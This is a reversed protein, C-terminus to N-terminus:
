MYIRTTRSDFRVMVSFSGSGLDWSWRENCSKGNQRAEESRGIKLFKRMHELDIQSRCVQCSMAAETFFIGPSRPLRKKTTTGFCCGFFFFCPLKFDCFGLYWLYKAVVIWCFASSKEWLKAPEQHQSSSLSPAGFYKPCHTAEVNTFGM